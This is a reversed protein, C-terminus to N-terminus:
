LVNVTIMEDSTSNNCLFIRNRGEHKARYMARDARKVLDEVTSIEPLYEAVGISVTIRIERGEKEMDAPVIVRKDIEQRLREALSAAHNGDTLPCLVMIEEGGYRAVIDSVRIFNKIIAGLNKLVMDGTDHGYTDNVNKFYDIDLMLISFALDYRVAKAFEEHLKRELHRRNSIGMLPDTINEIELTYIRKIDLATRLSLTSVMLVFLAGFFLLICIIDRNILVNGIRYQVTIYIYIGIFFFIMASLIKWLKRVSGIPLECKLKLIPVLTVLLLIIGAIDLNLVIANLLEYM